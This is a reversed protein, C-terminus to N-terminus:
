PVKSPVYPDPRLPSAGSAFARIFFYTTSFRSRYSFLPILVGITSVGLIAFIAGIRLGLDGESAFDRCPNDVALSMRGPV